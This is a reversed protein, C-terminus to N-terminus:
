GHHAHAALTYCALSAFCLCCPRVQQRAAAIDLQTIPAASKSLAVALHKKEGGGRGGGVEGGDGGGGGGIRARAGDPLQWRTQGTLENYFYTHGTVPDKDSVWSDDVPSEADDDPSSPQAEHEDKGDGSAVAAARRKEAGVLWRDLATRNAVRPLAACAAAAEAALVASSSGAAGPQGHQKLASRAEAAAARENDTAVAPHLSYVGLVQKTPVRVWVWFILAFVRLTQSNLWALHLLAMCRWAAGADWPMGRVTRALKETEAWWEGACAFPLWLVNQVHTM